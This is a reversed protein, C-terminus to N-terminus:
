SHYYSETRMKLEKENENHPRDSQQVFIPDGFSPKQRDFFHAANGHLEGCDARDLLWRDSRM